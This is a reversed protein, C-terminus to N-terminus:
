QCLWDVLSDLRSFSVSGFNNSGLNPSIPINGALPGSAAPAISGDDATEIGLLSASPRRKAPPPEVASRGGPVEPQNGGSAAGSVSAVMTPTATAVSIDLGPHSSRDPNWFRAGSGHLAPLFAHPIISESMLLRIKPWCGCYFVHPTAPRDGKTPVSTTAQTSVVPERGYGKM